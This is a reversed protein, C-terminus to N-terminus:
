WATQVPYQQIMPDPTLIVLKEQIAQCVLMRDFPDRHVRPLNPVYLAAEESLPLPDIQHVTRQSPVFLSPSQPLILRGLSHQVAIEWASVSSLFLQNAPDLILQAARASLRTAQLAIWLFTCTDLLIRM